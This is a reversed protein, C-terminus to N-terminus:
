DVETDSDPETDSKPEPESELALIYDDFCVLNVDEGKCAEILEAQDLSTAFIVQGDYDKADSAKSILNAFSIKSAEHQRPEDFVVFGGHKIEDRKGALEMLALTYAWIIQIYDSASTEAVIDYGEQEPRLTQHSVTISTIASPNFNFSALNSRIIAELAGIILAKGDVNTQKRLLRLSETAAVWQSYTKAARGRLDDLIEKLKEVERFEMDAQIKERLLSKTVGNVDEIDERIRGLKDTEVDMRTKVLRARAQFEELQDINKNRVSVFFDIQNKLFDINEGLTMPERKVTRNGLTDYLDSECIPCKQTELDSDISSGVNKLRRLQQYQDLDHKLTSIKSEAESVALLTVEVSEASEDLERRLTRLIAHQLDLAENSPTATSVDNSLREILRSLSRQQESVSILADGQIYSFNISFSDQHKDITPISNLEVSNFKAAVEAQASIKEWETEAKEIRNRYTVVKKEFEFSDIGLCFEAASKKVNKIGYHTPINAQIESWGRKQEVFFLPFICELYLTTEKGDFTVVNPLSWGIFEALWHHFGRESVASGVQGASGLFYDRKTGGTDVTIKSESGAIDRLLVAKSGTRNTIALQVSSSSVFFPNQDTKNDFIESYLSKPFPRKRSPGLISELGLGYAIANICTSKGSSNEARIVNLGDGFPISCSFAGGNTAASIVLNDIKLGLM